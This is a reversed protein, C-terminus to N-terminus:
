RCRCSAQTFDEVRTSPGTACRVLGDTRCVQQFYYFLATSDAREPGLARSLAYRFDGNDLWETSKSFLPFLEARKLGCAMALM